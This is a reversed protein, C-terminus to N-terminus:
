YLRVVPSPDKSALEVCLALSGDDLGRGSPSCPEALCQIAWARVYQASNQMHERARAATLGGTAHLTWLARLRRSEEPHVIALSHLGSHVQSDPEREALLRRATRVFWENDHLQLRVLESSPLKRLDVPRSKTDGYTIKFIRGNSRDWLEPDTRHCAQKDYWDILYVAGDPGYQLDIGRYWRDNAILFDKEHKGVLGSGNAHLSDVNVRCGHINSMFLKGRYETPFAGGLYIMAGCHAHGGGLSDSLSVHNPTWLKGGHHLHDAATKLDDYVHERFHRGAQRQYRAGQIVHYLHPIVCATIVAQGHDDFDIGWPNSTGWAFVEFRHDKPHLRWVGGNIPARQEEPTGPKGVKSHTFVGHCGYLWGDPGWSFSNLTEHTDEYGWGDLVVEPPGDPKDDGNKDAFFYLYPAAGVWVGGFGVEIGSVLNLGDAFVTRKDHRGDGDEDTFIVIRDKGQGEPQRRPYSHAEAVWLRSREDIAFGIPQTVDPEGAFLSVQFGEPVSMSHAALAPPCVVTLSVALAAGQGM